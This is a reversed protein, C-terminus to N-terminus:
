HPKNKKAIWSFIKKGDIIIIMVLLYCSIKINKINKLFFSLHEFLIIISINVPLIIIM